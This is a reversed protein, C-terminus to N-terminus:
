EAMSGGYLPPETHAIPAMPAILHSNKISGPIPLGSMICHIAVCYAVISAVM